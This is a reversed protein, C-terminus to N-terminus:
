IKLENIEESCKKRALGEYYNITKEVWLHGDEKIYTEPHLYVRLDKPVVEGTIKLIIRELRDIRDYQERIRTRYNEKNSEATQNKKTEIEFKEEVESLERKNKLNVAEWEQKQAEWEQKQLEWHHKLGEYQNLLQKYDQNKYNQYFNWFTKIKNKM